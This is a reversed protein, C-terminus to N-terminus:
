KPSLPAAPTLPMVRTEIARHVGGIELTIVTGAVDVIRGVGLTPHRAWAGVRLPDVDTTLRPLAAREGLRLAGGSGTALHGARLLANVRLELADDIKGGTRDFGLVRATVVKLETPPITGASETLRLLALDMEEPPILDITRQTEDKGPRPVRVYEVAKQGARWVFPGRREALGRRAAEVLAMEVADQIRSGARALGFAHVLRSAIVREHVPAEHAVVKVIKDVHAGRLGWDHFEMWTREYRLGSAPEYPRAWPLQTADEADHLEVQSLEMRRRGNGNVGPLSDRGPLRLQAPKGLEREAVEIAERLRNINSGRRFCWDQAWVRHLRWGLHSLVEARLRDRDRATKAKQYADGDCEVGLCIRGPAVKSLVGLDVRYGSTGVRRIVEYGLAEIVGAVDEELLGLGDGGGASLTGDLQGTEAYRLYARLLRAGDPLDGSRLDVDDLKLDAARISSVVVVKRRARSVAVNLRRAGGKRNLPGFNHYIRGNEDPGYGISFVIVDREDGQVTELNKVFFGDLRGDGLRRELAPEVRFRRELEDQIAQQQAVSFAVVGITLSPDSKAIQEVVDMVRQAEVPNSATRGREFVANPVHVFRVGLEDPRAIPAPFTVLGDRYIYHNSFAILADHRSRYHWSLRIPELGVSACVDLISEFDGLEDEIEADSESTAALQFFDSPPLQNPDGAVILQQGRYICNIADEPPVQSAEDFVVLDFRAEPTLFHSVSLPSMMLCPKLAPLLTPIEGLLRRVPWHKRRKIAEKRVIAQEGVSMSLPAPKREDYARLVRERGLEVLERDSGRYAAVIREHEEQTFGGLRKDQSSLSAFWAELWARRAAPEVQDPPIRRGVATTAWERWGSSVLAERAGVFAQWTALDDLRGVLGDVFARAAAPSGAIVRLVEERRVEEFLVACRTAAATLGDVAQRHEEWGLAAIRGNAIDQAVAVAVYGGYRHRLEKSWDLATSLGEWDSRFGQYDDHLAAALTSEEASLLRELAEVEARDSTDQLAEGLSTLPGQRTAQIQEYLAGLEELGAGFERLWETLTEFPLGNLTDRDTAAPECLAALTAELEDLMRELDDAAHDIDANPSTDCAAVAAIRKWDTGRPCKDLLTSAATAAALTAPIDTGLGTAFPGLLDRAETEIAALSAALQRAGIADDLDEIVTPPVMHSVAVAAIGARDARHQPRLRNWWHGNWRRMRTAVGDLDLSFLGDEYRQALRGSVDQHRVYDNGHADLFARARSLRTRALWAAPPRHEQQTARALQVVDRATAISPLAPGLGLLERVHELGSLAEVVQARATSAMGALRGRTEVLSVALSTSDTLRQLREQVDRLRGAAEPVLERWRPGHCAELRATVVAYRRSEGSWRELLSAYPGLEDRTLWEIPGERRRAVWEGLSLLRVRDEQSRPAVLEFASSAVEDFTECTSIATRIATLTEAVQARKAETDGEVEADRWVFSEGELVPRWNDRLRGVKALMADLDADTAASADIAPGSIAPVDHLTALESLVSFASRHLPERPEKLAEVYANLHRSRQGVREAVSGFAAHRSEIKHNLADNLAAAVEGRSAKASHLELVLDRLEVRELREAM